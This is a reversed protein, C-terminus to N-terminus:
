MVLVYVSNYTRLTAPAHSSCSKIRVRTGPGREVVVAAMRGRGGLGKVLVRVRVRVGM